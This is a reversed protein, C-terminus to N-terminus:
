PADLIRQRQNNFLEALNKDIADWDASDSDSTAEVSFSVGRLTTTLAHSVSRTTTGGDKPIRVTTTTYGHHDGHAATVDLPALTAEHNSDSDEVNFHPCGSLTSDFEAGWAPLDRMYIDTRYTPKGSDREAPVYNAVGEVVGPYQLDPWMLQSCADSDGPESTPSFSGSLDVVKYRYGTESPFDSATALLDSVPSSVPGAAPEAAPTNKGPWWHLVGFAAIAVVAVAAVLGVAVWPGRRRQPPPPPEQQYLPPSGLYAQEAMGGYHLGPDHSEPGVPFQPVNPREPNGGYTYGRGFRSPPLDNPM